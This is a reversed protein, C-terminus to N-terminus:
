PCLHEILTQSPLGNVTSNGVAWVDGDPSVDAGSLENNAGIVNASGDLVFAGGTSHEILTRDAGGSTSGHGVVWAEGAGNVAVGFLTTFEGRRVVSLPQWQTGTWHQAFSGDQPFYVHGPSFVAGSSNADIGAVFSDTAVRPRWARVLSWTSGDWHEFYPQGTEFLGNSIGGTAWVDNSAIATVDVLDNSDTGLNPSPVITWSSGDWHETLTQATGLGNDYYGVAWVDSTSTATVGLLSALSGETPMSVESWATGDWHEAYPGTPGVAWADSASIDVVDSLSHNGPSSNSPFRTWATGDWHLILPTTTITINGTITNFAGVAWADTASLASVAGLGNFDNGPSPSPVIEWAPGCTAEPETARAGAAM